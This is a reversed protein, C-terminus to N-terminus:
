NFFLKLLFFFCSFKKKSNFFHMFFPTTYLLTLLKISLSFLQVLGLKSKM